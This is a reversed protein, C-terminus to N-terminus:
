GEREIGTRDSRRHCQAKATPPVVPHPQLQPL